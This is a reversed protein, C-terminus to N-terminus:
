GQLECGSKSVKFDRVIYDDNVVSQVTRRAGIVGSVRRWKGGILANEEAVM